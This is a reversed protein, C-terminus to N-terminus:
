IEPFMVKRLVSDEWLAQLEPPEFVAAEAAKAQLFFRVLTIGDELIDSTDPYFHLEYGGAVIGTNRVGYIFIHIVDPYNGELMRACFHMGPVSERLVKLLLNLHPTYLYPVTVGM